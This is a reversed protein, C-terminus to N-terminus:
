YKGDIADAIEKQTKEIEDQPDYTSLTHNFEPDGADKMMIVLYRIRNAIFQGKTLEPKTPQQAFPNTTISKSAM